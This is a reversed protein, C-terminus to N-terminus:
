KSSANESTLGSGDTRFEAVRRVPADRRGVFDVARFAVRLEGPDAVCSLFGRRGDVAPPANVRGQRLGRTFREDEALQWDVEVARPPM